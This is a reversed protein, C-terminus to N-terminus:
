GLRFVVIALQEEVHSLFHCLALMASQGASLLREKRSPTRSGGETKDATALHVRRECEVHGKKRRRERCDPTVRIMTEVCRDGRDKWALM